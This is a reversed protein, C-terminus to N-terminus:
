LTMEQVSSYGDSDLSVNFQKDAVEVFESDHTVIIFQIGYEVSLKKLFEAARKKYDSGSLSNSVFKLPEDLVLVKPLTPSYAILGAIRLGLAIVDAKGGADDELPDLQIKKGNKTTELLFSANITGRKNAYKIKFTDENQFIYRYFRTVLNEVVKTIRDRLKADLQKVIEVCDGQLKLAAEVQKFEQQMQTHRQLNTEYRDKLIALKQEVVAIHKSLM